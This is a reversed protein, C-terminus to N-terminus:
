HKDDINYNYSNMTFLQPKFFGEINEEKYTYIKGGNSIIQTKTEDDRIM